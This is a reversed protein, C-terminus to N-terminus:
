APAAIAKTKFSFFLSFLARCNEEIIGQKKPIVSGRKNPIVRVLVLTKRDPIIPPATPPAKAFIKLM